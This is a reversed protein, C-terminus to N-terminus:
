RSYPGDILYVHGRKGRVFARIDLLLRALFLRVNLGVRRARSWEGEIFKGERVAGSSPLFRVAGDRLGVAFRGGGGDSGFVHIPMREAFRRTKWDRVIWRPEGRHPATAVRAAADIFYGNYVDPLSMGDCAAYLEKLAWPMAGRRSAAPERIVNTGLPFSFDREALQGLQERISPVWDIMFRADTTPARRRTSRPLEIGHERLQERSMHESATGNGEPLLWTVLAGKGKRQVQYGDRLLPIVSDLQTRVDPDIEIRRASSLADLVTRRLRRLAIEAGRIRVQKSRDLLARRITADVLAVRRSAGAACMAAHRVHANGSTSMREIADVARAHRGSLWGLWQIAADWLLAKPSSAAAVVIGVDRSSPTKADAARDFAAAARLLGRETARDRPGRRSSLWLATKDHQSAMARGPYLVRSALDASRSRSFASRDSPPCRCNSFSPLGVRRQTRGDDFLSIRVAPNTGGNDFLPDGVAPNTRGNDFLPFGVRPNISANNFL